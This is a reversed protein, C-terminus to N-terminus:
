DETLSPTRVLFPLSLAALLSALASILAGTLATAGALLWLSGPASDALVVTVALGLGAGAVSGALGILLGEVTILQGLRRNTWGVARLLALDDRRERM